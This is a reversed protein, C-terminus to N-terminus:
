RCRFVIVKSRHPKSRVNWFGERMNLVRRFNKIDWDALDLRNDNLRVSIVTWNPANVIKDNTDSYGNKWNGREAREPYYIGAIYSGLM